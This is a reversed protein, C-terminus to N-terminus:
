YFELDEISYGSNIDFDFWWEFMLNIEELEFSFTVPDADASSQSLM